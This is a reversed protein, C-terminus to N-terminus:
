QIDPVMVVCGTLRDSVTVQCSLRSRGAELHALAQSLLAQELDSPAEIQGATTEDLYVHCTACSASGGCEGLIGPVGNQIAAELLTWGDPVDVPRRQGEPDIFVVRNM